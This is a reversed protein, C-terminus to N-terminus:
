TKATSPQYIRWVTHKRTKIGKVREPHGRAIRGLYNAIATNHTMLRKCSDVIHKEQVDSCLYQELELASGEWYNTFRKEQLGGTGTVTETELCSTLLQTMDILDLLRAEPSVEELAVM